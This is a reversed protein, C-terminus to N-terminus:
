GNVNSGAINCAAFARRAARLAPSGTVDDGHHSGGM